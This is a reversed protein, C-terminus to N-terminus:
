ECIWVGEITVLVCSLVRLYIYTDTQKNLCVRVNMELQNSTEDRM